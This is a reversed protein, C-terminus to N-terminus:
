SRFQFMVSRPHMSDMVNLPQNLEALFVNKLADNKYHISVTLPLLSLKLFAWMRPLITVFFRQHNYGVLILLFQQM